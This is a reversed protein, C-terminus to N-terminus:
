RVACNNNTNQKRKKQLQCSLKSPFAPFSELFNSFVFKCPLPSVFFLMQSFCCTMVLENAEDHCRRRGWGPTTGRPKSSPSRRRRRWCSSGAPTWSRPWHLLSRYLSSTLSLSTLMVCCEAVDGCPSTVCCMFCFYTATLVPHHFYLLFDVKVALQQVSFVESWIWQDGSTRREIQGGNQMKWHCKTKVELCFVPNDLRFWIM